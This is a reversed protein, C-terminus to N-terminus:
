KPAKLSNPNKKEELLQNIVDIITATTLDQIYLEDTVEDPTLIKGEGACRLAYYVNQLIEIPDVELAKNIEDISADTKNLIGERKSLLQMDRELSRGSIRKYHNFISIKNAVPYLGKYNIIM